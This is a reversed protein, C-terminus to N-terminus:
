LEDGPMPPVDPVRVEVEPKRAFRNPKAQSYDFEYEPLLEDHEFSMKNM